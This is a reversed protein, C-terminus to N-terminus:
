TETSCNRSMTILYKRSVGSTRWVGAAKMVLTATAFTKGHPSYGHGRAAENGYQKYGGERGMGGKSVDGARGDGRVAVSDLDVVRADANVAYVRRFYLLEALTVAHRPM